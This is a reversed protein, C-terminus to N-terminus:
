KAAEVLPEVSTAKTDAIAAVAAQQADSESRGHDTMSDYYQQTAAVNIDKDYEGTIDNATQSLAKDFEASLDSGSIEIKTGVYTAAVRDALKDATQYYYESIQRHGNEHDVVHQTVGVPVWINVSLQLMMKVSTITV